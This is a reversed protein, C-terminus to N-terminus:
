VTTEAPFTLRVQFINGPLLDVNLAIDLLEAFAAVIPLGLGSHEAGSRAKDKRWFRKFMHELDKPTLGNSQNEIVLGLTGNNQSTFCSIRTGPISYAVANDILNQIIMEFREADTHIMVDSDVRDEFQLNNGAASSAQRNWSSEILPKLRVDQVQVTATRNDCQTIALMNTVINQMQLSIERIDDFFGQIATQDDPWKAGVECATRLESVPTRLEHAVDSSFRRERVFANEIRELLGNITDLVTYLEEPPSPLDIRKSLADPGIAKMQENLLDIPRLGDKVTRYIFGGTAILFLVAIISFTVLFAFLLSDLSERSRAVVLVVVTEKYNLQRPIMMEDDDLDEYYDDAADAEYADDEDEDVQPAFTFQVLRGPRGDPLKVNRFKLGRVSTKDFPLDSQGLSQSKRIVTRDQFRFQFYEPNKDRQFEPMFANAIEIELIRGERETLSALANAKAELTGDFERVVRGYLIVGLFASAIFLLALTGILLRATLQRRISTM